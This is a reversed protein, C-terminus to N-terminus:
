TKKSRNCLNIKKTTEEGKQVIYYLSQNNYIYKHYSGDLFEINLLNEEVTIQRINNISNIDNSLYATFRTYQESTNNAITIESMNDKFYVTFMSVTGIVISFVMLYIILSTLTIGKNSKM